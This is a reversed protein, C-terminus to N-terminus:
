KGYFKGNFLQFVKMGALMSVVFVFFEMRGSGLGVISPGPCIGAWGWGIGFIVSGFILKADIDKRTPIHFNTDLIPSNRRLIFRFAIAHVAIAGAMVFILSGNWNGAVDLFGRVNGPNTMGGVALGVAFILGTVFAVLGKM